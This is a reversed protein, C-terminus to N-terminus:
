LCVVGRRIGSSSVDCSMLKIKEICKNINLKIEKGRFRIIKYGMKKLVADRKRDRSNGLKHWAEGDCEIILRIEPIFFDAIYGYKCRIPYNYESEIGNEKLAKSMIEEIDTKYLERVM